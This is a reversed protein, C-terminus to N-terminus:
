KQRDENFLDQGCSRQVCEQKQSELKWPTTHQCRSSDSFLIRLEPEDYVALELYKRTVDTMRSKTYIIHQRLAETEAKVAQIHKLKVELTLANLDVNVLAASM